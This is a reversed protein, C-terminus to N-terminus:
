RDVCGWFESPGSGSVPYSAGGTRGCAECEYQETWRSVDAQPDTVHTTRLAGGCECRLTM